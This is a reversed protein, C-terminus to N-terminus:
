ENKNEEYSDVVESLKYYVGIGFIIGCIISFM